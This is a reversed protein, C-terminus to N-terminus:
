PMIFEQFSKKIYTMVEYSSMKKAEVITPRYKDMFTQLSDGDLKTLSVIKQKSFVEDVYNYEESKSLRKQLQLTPDKKPSLLKILPLLSLTILSSTSNVYRGNFNPRINSDVHSVFIDKFSTKKYAFVSAFEKRLRISDISYNRNARINLQRLSISNQYLWIITPDASHITVTLTYTEYGMRSVELKDGPQVNNLTFKGDALTVVKSLGITVNAYPVPKKTEKDLVLGNLKQALLGTTCLMLIITYLLKM